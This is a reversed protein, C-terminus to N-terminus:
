EAAKVIDTRSFQVEQQGKKHSALFIREIIREYRNGKNM